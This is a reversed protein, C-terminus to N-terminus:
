VVQGPFALQATPIEEAGCRWASAIEEVGVLSHGYNLYHDVLYCHSWSM